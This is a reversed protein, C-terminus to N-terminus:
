HEDDWPEGPPHHATVSVDVIHRDLHWKALHYHSTREEIRAGDTTAPLGAAQAQALAAHALGLEDQPYWLPLQQKRAAPHLFATLLGDYDVRFEKEVLSRESLHARAGEAVRMFSLPATLSQKALPTLPPLNLDGLPGLTRKWRSNKRTPPSVAGAEGGKAEEAKGGAPDPVATAPAIEDADRSASSTTPLLPQSSPQRLLFPLAILSSWVSSKRDRDTSARMAPGKTDRALLVTSEKKGLSPRTEHGRKQSSQLKLQHTSGTATVTSPTAPDSPNGDSAATTPTAQPAPARTPDAAADLATVSLTRPSIDGGSAAATCPSPRASNIFEAPEDPVALPVSQTHHHHTHHGLSLQSLQRSMPLHCVSASHSHTLSPNLSRM